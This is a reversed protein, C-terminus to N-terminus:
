LSSDNLTYGGVTRKKGYLCKKLLLLKKTIFKDKCFKVCVTLFSLVTKAHVNKNNNNNNNYNNNNNLDRM